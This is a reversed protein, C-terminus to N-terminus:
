IKFINRLTQFFGTKVATVLVATINDKGGNENSLRILEECAKELSPQQEIVSLITDDDVMGTLGDSCLLIIDGDELPQEDMDVEVEPSVGLARTIVNRIKSTAAEEPTILGARVQEAVLSHDNTLQFMGGDRILYVRSDGAHAVALNGDETATVAVVTSGMGKLSPNSTSTEYVVQNALRIASAMRNVEDSMSEVAEGIFPEDDDETAKLYHSNIVEVAMRSAVEGANQGGVGDAVVFLELDNNIHLNDENHDRTTGVDTLGTGVLRIAM